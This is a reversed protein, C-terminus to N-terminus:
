SINNTLQLRAARRFLFTGAAVFIGLALGKRRWLDLFFFFFPFFVLLTFFFFFFFYIFM